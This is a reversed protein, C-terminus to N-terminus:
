SQIFTPLPREITIICTVPYRFDRDGFGGEFVKDGGDRRALFLIHKQPVDAPDQGPVGFQSGRRRLDDLVFPEHPGTSSM